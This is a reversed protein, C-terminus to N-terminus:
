ECAIVDECAVHRCGWRHSWWSLTLLVPSDESHSRARQFRTGYSQLWLSTVGALLRRICALLICDGHIGDLEM